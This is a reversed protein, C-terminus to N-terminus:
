GFYAQTQDVDATWTDFGVEGYNSTLAQVISQTFQISPPTGWGGYQSWSYLALGGSTIFAFSVLLLVLYTVLMLRPSWIAMAASLGVCLLISLISAVMILWCGPKVYTLGGAELVGFAFRFQIFAYLPMVFCVISLALVVSM